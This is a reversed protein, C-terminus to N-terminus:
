AVRGRSLFFNRKRVTLLNQFSSTQLLSRGHSAPAEGKVAELIITGGNADWISLVKEKRGGAAIWFKRFEGEIGEQCVIPKIVNGHSHTIRHLRWAQV